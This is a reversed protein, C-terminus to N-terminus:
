GIHAAFIGIGFIGLVFLLAWGFGIIDERYRKFTFKKHLSLLDVLLLSQGNEELSEGKKLNTVNVEGELMIKIGAEKLKYEEGM